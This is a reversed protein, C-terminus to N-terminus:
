NDHRPEGDVLQTLSEYALELEDWEVGSMSDENFVIRPNQNMIYEMPDSEDVNFHDTWSTIELACFEEEVSIVEANGVHKPYGETGGEFHFAEDIYVQFEIGIEPVGHDETLRAYVVNGERQLVRLSLDDSEEVFERSDLLTRISQLVQEMPSLHQTRIGVAITNVLDETTVEGSEARIRRLQDALETSEKDAVEVIRDFGGSERESRRNNGSTHGGLVDPIDSFLNSFVISLHKRINDPERIADIGMVVILVLMGLILLPSVSIVGVVAAIIISFM